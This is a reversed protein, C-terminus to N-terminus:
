DEAPEEEPWFFGNEEDWEMGEPILWCDGDQHIRYKIGNEDTVVADQEVEQWAEWYWEHNPGTELIQWNEDTVGSVHKARDVFSNAFDRPIYQGRADSLWLMPEPKTHHTM